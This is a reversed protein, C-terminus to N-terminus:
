KKYPPLPRPIIIWESTFAPPLLAIISRHDISLADRRIDRQVTSCGALTALMLILFAKM